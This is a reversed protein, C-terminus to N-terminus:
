FSLSFPILSWPHIPVQAPEQYPAHARAYRQQRVRLGDHGGGLADGDTEEDEHEAEEDLFPDEGESSWGKEM